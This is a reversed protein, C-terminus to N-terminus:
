AYSSEWPGKERNHLLLFPHFPRPWALGIGSHSRPMRDQKQININSM